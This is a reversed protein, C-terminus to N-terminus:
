LPAAVLKLSGNYFTFTSHRSSHLPRSVHRQEAHLSTGLTRHTSVVLWGDHRSHLPSSLSYLETLSGTQGPVDDHTSGGSGGM